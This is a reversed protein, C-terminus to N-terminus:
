LAWPPLLSLFSLQSSCTPSPLITFKPYSEKPWSSSKFTQLLISTSKDQIKLLPLRMSENKYLNKGRLLSWFSRMERKASSHQADRINGTARYAICCIGLGVSIVFSWIMFVDLACNSHEHLQHMYRMPEVTHFFSALQWVFVVRSYRMCALQTTNNFLLWWKANGVQPLSYIIARRLIGKGKRNVAPCIARMM